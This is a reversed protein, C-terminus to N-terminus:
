YQRKPLEAAAQAQEYVGEKSVVRKPIEEKNAVKEILDFLQPGLLPNCE